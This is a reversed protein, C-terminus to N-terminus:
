CALILNGGSHVASALSAMTVTITDAEAICGKVEIFRLRGTRPDRSEIDYDPKDAERDVLKYGLLRIQKRINPSGGTSQNCLGATM